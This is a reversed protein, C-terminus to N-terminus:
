IGGGEFAIKLITIALIYGGMFALIGALTYIIKNTM